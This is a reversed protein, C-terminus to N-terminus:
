YEQIIRKEGDAANRQSQRHEHVLHVSRKPKERAKSVAFIVDNLFVLQGFKAHTNIM